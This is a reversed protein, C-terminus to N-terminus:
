LSLPFAHQRGQVLLVAVVDVASFISQTNGGM